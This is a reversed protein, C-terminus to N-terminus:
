FAKTLVVANRPVRGIFSISLFFDDIYVVISGMGRHAM